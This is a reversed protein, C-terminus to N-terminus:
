EDPPSDADFLSGNQFRVGKRLKFEYTTDDIQHHSVAVDYEWGKENNAPRILGSSISHSTYIYPLSPISVKIHSGPALKPAVRSEADDDRLIQPEFLALELEGAVCIDSLCLLALLILVDYRKM